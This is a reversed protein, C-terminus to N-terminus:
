NILNALTIYDSISLNEPRLTPDIGCDLLQQIPIIKKLASKLQKRRQNFAVRTVKELNAINNLKPLNKQNNPTLRVLTSDVKPAPTFAQPPIHVLPEVDCFYQTIISLRGYNSSNPTAALRDVVEKQLLFTMDQIINNNQNNDQSLTLPLLKIILASSINYPLNGVIRTIKYQNIIKTFDVKLVDSSIIELQEQTFNQNLYKICDTDIEIATLKPTYSLLLKTLAGLGPGIEIIKDNTQPNINKIILNLFYDDKLFNQGFRKKARHNQAPLYKSNNYKNKNPNM